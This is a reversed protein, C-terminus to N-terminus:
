RARLENIEPLDENIYWRCPSSGSLGRRGTILITYVFSLLLDLFPQELLTHAKVPIGEYPKVLTGVFIVVIAEKEAAQLLSEGEFALAREGWLILDIKYGSCVFHGYMFCMNILYLFFLVSPLLM